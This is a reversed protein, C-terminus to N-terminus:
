AFPPRTKGGPPDWKSAALALGNTDNAHYVAVDASAQQSLAQAIGNMASWSRKGARYDDLQKYIVAADM